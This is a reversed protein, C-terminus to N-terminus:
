IILDYWGNRALILFKKDSALSYLEHQNINSINQSHLRCVAELYSRVRGTCNSKVIQSMVDSETHNQQHINTYSHTYITYDQFSRITFTCLLYISLFPTPSSDLSWFNRWELRLMTDSSQNQFCRPGHSYPRRQLVWGGLDFAPTGPILALTHLQQLPSFRCHLPQQVSTTHTAAPAASRLLPTSSFCVCSPAQHQSTNLNLCQTKSSILLYNRTCIM